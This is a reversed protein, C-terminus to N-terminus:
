PAPQGVRSDELANSITAGLEVDTPSELEQTSDPRESFVDVRRPDREMAAVRAVGGDRRVNATRSEM